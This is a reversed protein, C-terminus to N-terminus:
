TRGAFISAGLEPHEEGSGCSGIMECDHSVERKALSGIVSSREPM